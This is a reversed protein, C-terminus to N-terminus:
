IFRYVAMSQYVATTVPRHAFRCQALAIPPALCCLEGSLNNLVASINYQASSADETLSQFSNLFGQAEPVHETCMFWGNMWCACLTGM